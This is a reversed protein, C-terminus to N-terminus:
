WGPNQVLSGNLNLEDTPIPYFYDRAENFKNRVQDEIGNVYGRNGESLKVDSGIALVVAGEPPTPKVTDKEYLVVDVKGDGTFDYEGAGPIYMGTFDQDIMAGCKWRMLDDWRRGEQVMEVGRERRIELIVGINETPLTTYGTTKSTLYPDPNANADSMSLMGTMGVRKRLENVTKELDPQTLTGLEAKAEALNLLCEAYRFEPLDCSTTGNMDMDYNGMRSETVFKIPQYGTNTLKLDTSLITTAGQRHYNLGRVSQQLRPDRDKMEDVFQMTQWGAKDTFRSGDKMLYSCVFKRTYGPQGQTPVLTFANANHKLKLGQDYHVALIYEDKNADQAAFMNRYDDNGKGTSYLKYKGYKGSMLKESADVCQELYYKWDHGELTINHYKRFTGEYLCFNSKLALAAGATVRYLSAEEANTPLNEIAYDIDEIMKTLVLERSDRPKFLDPDNSALQRDIWPVDGFRKVKKFYFYARFFRAVGTYRKVAEKDPCQDIYELLTNIRRLVGWSWGGGSAPISRANGARLEVSLPSAIMDDAQDDYTPNGDVAQTLINPYFYNSFLQLDTETNFYEDLGIQAKPKLDIADECSSFGFLGTLVISIYLLKKM